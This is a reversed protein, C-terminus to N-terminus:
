EEDGNDMEGLVSEIVSSKDKNEAGRGGTLAELIRVFEDRSKGDVSTLRKEYSHTFQKLEDEMDSVEPYLHTLLELASILEPHNEDLRTKAGFDDQEPLYNALLEIAETDTSSGKYGFMLESEEDVVEDRDVPEPTDEKM